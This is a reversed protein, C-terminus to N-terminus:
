DSQEELSEQRILFPVLIGVIKGLCLFVMEKGAIEIEMHCQQCIEYRKYKNNPNM